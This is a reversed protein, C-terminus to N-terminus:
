HSITGDAVEIEARDVGWREAALDVLLERTSAAVKHLHLAMTPTTRSGFTGADFPTRDTDGMVVQISEVPVRLEEAVAQALSTRINQGVEAKGTYVIVTGDPEIHLWDGIGPAELEGPIPRGAGGSQRASGRTANRLEESM